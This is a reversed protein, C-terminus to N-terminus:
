AKETAHPMFQEEVISQLGANSVAGAREIAKRSPSKSGTWANAGSYATSSTGAASATLGRATARADRHSPGQRRHKVLGMRVLRGFAQPARDAAFSPNTQEFGRRIAVRGRWHSLLTRQTPVARTKFLTTRRDRCQPHNSIPITM